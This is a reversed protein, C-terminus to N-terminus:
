NYNWYSKYMSIKRRLFSSLRHHNKGLKYGILKVGNRLISVPLLYWKGQQMLYQWESIVFRLGEGEPNSFEQLIWNEKNHFVGIDFNRQFEERISYDHSHYVKAESVYALSYGAIVAKSAVYMDEGLIVNSPFGGIEKLVDKRYAAFSNSTFVTKLGYREKDEFSKISSQKPYNFSRAFSGFVKAHRHPLQRGYAIGVKENEFVKVLKDISNEEYLLADQTLYVLIDGKAQKAALNRTGGHNFERPDIKMVKAGFSAAVERTQDKSSSDIIIVEIEERKPILPLLRKLEQEGNLTPIIVSITKM